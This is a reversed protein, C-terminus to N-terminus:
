CFCKFKMLIFCVLKNFLNGEKKFQKIKDIVSVFMEGKKIKKEGDNFSKPM